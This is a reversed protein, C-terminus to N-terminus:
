LKKDCWHRKEKELAIVTRLGHSLLRNVTAGALEFHVLGTLDHQFSLEAKALRVADEIERLRLFACPQM